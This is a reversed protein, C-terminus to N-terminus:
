GEPETLGAWHETRYRTASFTIGDDLNTGRDQAGVIRLRADAQTWRSAASALAGFRFVRLIDLATFRILLPKRV